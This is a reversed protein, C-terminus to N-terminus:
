DGKWIDKLRQYFTHPGNMSLGSMQADNVEIVTWNGEVTEGVDVVFTPVKNALITAAEKALRLGEEPFEEMDEACEAQSWYYGASVLETGVFFCRWENTVPIENIGDELKRLPVYERVVLGQDGIFSDDWLNTMVERLTERDPAFMHSKWKFKRSNTRGKVVYGHESDPANQYGVEFWTEPTMGQLDEYWDMNAIYRHEKYSNILKSGKHELEDQLDKYFPLCSYRAFVQTNEPIDSRFRTLNDGWISKAIKYEEETDQDKRFLIYPKM